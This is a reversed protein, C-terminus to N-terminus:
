NGIQLQSIYDIELDLVLSDKGLFRVPVCRLVSPARSISM